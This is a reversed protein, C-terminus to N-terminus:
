ARQDDNLTDLLADPAAMTPGGRTMIPSRPRPRAGPRGAPGRPPTRTLRRPRARARAGQPREPGRDRAHVRGRAHPRPRPPRPGRGGREVRVVELRARQRGHRRAHLRGDGGRPRPPPQRARPRRAGHRAPLARRARRAACARQDAGPGARRRLRRVPPLLRGDHRPRRAGRAAPQDPRRRPARPLRRPRARAGGRGHHRVGARGAADNRRHRRHGPARGASGGLAARVTNACVARVPTTMARIAGTGTHWASLVVYPRVEDGGVTVHDPLQATIFVQRGAWLSGATEFILESGLLNELFAFCESNQVVVYDGSVVGLVQDTDERVTAHHGAVPQGGARYLPEKAVTWTLGAAELAAALTRPREDLVVGLRHWPVRRVSMMTDSQTIGHAM